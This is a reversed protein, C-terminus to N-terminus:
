LVLGFCSGPDAFVSGFHDAPAQVTPKADRKRSRRSRGCGARTPTRFRSTLDNSRSRRNEARLPGMPTPQLRFQSSARLAPWPSRRSSVAPAVTHESWAHCLAARPPKRSPDNLQYSGKWQGELRVCGLWGGLQNLQSSQIDHEAFPPGSFITARRPTSAAAPKMQVSEPSPWQSGAIM